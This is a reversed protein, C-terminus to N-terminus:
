CSLEGKRCAVTGPLSSILWSGCLAAGSRLWNMESPPQVCWGSLAAKGEAAGGSDLRGKGLKANM